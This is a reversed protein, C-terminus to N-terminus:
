ELIGTPVFLFTFMFEANSQVPICLRATLRNLKAPEPYTLKSIEPSMENGSSHDMFSSGILSSVIVKGIM